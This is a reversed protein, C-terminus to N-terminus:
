ERRKKIFFVLVGVIGIGAGAIYIYMSYLKLFSPPGVVFQVHSSSNEYILDNGSFVAQVSWTGLAEVKFSGTFTGNTSTTVLQQFTGNPSIYVLTITLNQVAPTIIGTLTLNEESAITNTGLTINIQSEFKVVYSGNYMLTNELIDNAQVEYEVTAGAQQGPVVAIATRNDVIQMALTVTDQWNNISYILTSYELDTLPSIFTLSAENDPYVRLPTSLPEIFAKGFETKVLFRIVENGEEGLFVLHYLNNGEFPSSYNILMDQGYFECSVSAVGSFGKSELNYGGFGQQDVGGFLGPEWALPVGKLQDGVGLEPSAMLYLRVEYMDLGEPVRVRVEFRSSNTAFEFAWSTNEVHMYNQKGQIHVEHWLNCEVNEVVMFTGAEAAQSERPDNCIIFTYNGTQRPTFFPENLSTVSIGLNEQLQASQTHYGELEGLPNFVYIDYDTKDDSTKEVWDGYFYIHYRKGQTLHCLITYNSGVPIQSESIHVPLMPKSIYTWNGYPPTNVFIKASEVTFNKQQSFAEYILNNGDFWAQVMWSGIRETAFEVGWSGNVDTPAVIESTENGLIFLVRVTLNEVSLSLYGQVSVIESVFANEKDLTFDISAEYKVTYNGDLIIARDLMDLAEVRYQVLSGAEQSPITATCTWNRTVTMEVKSMNQWDDMSYYLEAEKLEFDSSFVMRTSNGPVVRGLPDILTLIGEEFRTKVAFKVLGGGNEGILVLHYLRKGSISSTYNIFMDKGYYECSAYAIGRFEKSELNFGGYDQPNLEGYLGSEWALPFENLLEGMGAEPNGMLYLRAEYMDLSEPVMIYVEIRESDTTFEFAWSTNFAPVDNEKGEIFIEHWMNGLVNEIIMFTAPEAGKSERPDNRIVFSYNGSTKPTFHPEDVNTGLHEPLGIAETHYTELEGSPNYVYIDYDTDPTPGYDVWEGYFYVHYTHNARLPCLVTWNSGVSIQSDNFYIPFMPKEVFTWNGYPPTNIFHHVHRTYEPFAEAKALFPLRWNLTALFFIIIIMTTFLRFYSSGILRM